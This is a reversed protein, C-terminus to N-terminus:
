ADSQEEVAVRFAVCPDFAAARNTIETQPSDGCRLGILSRAFPGDAAFNWETPALVRAHRLEGAHNVTLRYFLRGRPTEVAAYATRDGLPAAVIWGPPPTLLPQAAHRVLLRCAEQIELLRAATAAAPDAASWAHRAAPGTEPCRGPLHPSRVFDPSEALATVVAADDQTRLSDVPVPHTPPLAGQRAAWGSANDVGLAHLAHAIRAAHNATVEAHRAVHQGIVIAERAAAIDAEQPPATVTGATFLGRVHEALREGALRVIWAAADADSLPEGTAAAAAFHVAAAHSQGCLGHLAAVSAAAAAVPRGLMTSLLSVPRDSAITIRRVCGAELVATITIEGAIGSQTV